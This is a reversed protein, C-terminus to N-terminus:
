ASCINQVYLVANPSRGLTFDRIDTVLTQNPSQRKVIQAVILNRWQICNWISACSCRCCFIPAIIVHFPNGQQRLKWIFRYIAWLLSLNPASSVLTNNKKVSFKRMDACPNLLVSHNILCRVYFLSIGTHIHMHHQLGTARTFTESCQSSSFPKEGSHM